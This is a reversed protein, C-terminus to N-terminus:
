RNLKFHIKMTVGVPRSVGRPFPLYPGGAKVTEIAGDDLVRHGSTKTVRPSCITGDPKILFRVTATGELRDRRASAPYVTSHDIKGAVMSRFSGLQRKLDKPSPLKKEKNGSKVPPAAEPKIPVTESNNQTVNIDQVPPGTPVYRLGGGPLGPLPAPSSDPLLEGATSIKPAAPSVAPLKNEPSETIKVIEPSKSKGPGPPNKTQQLEFPKTKVAPAAAPAKKPFTEPKHSIRAPATSKKVRRTTATPYSKRVALKPPKIPRVAPAPKKTAPKQTIKPPIPRPVSKVPAPSPSLKEPAPKEPTLASLDVAVAPNQRAPQKTKRSLWVGGGALAALHLFAIFLLIFAM